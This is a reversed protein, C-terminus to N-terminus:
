TLKEMFMAYKGSYNEQLKERNKQLKERYHKRTQPISTKNMQNLKQRLIVFSTKSYRAIV